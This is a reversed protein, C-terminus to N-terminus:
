NPATPATAPQASAEPELPAGSLWRELDSGTIRLTTIPSGDAGLIQIKGGTLDPTGPILDTPTLADGPGGESLTTLRRESRALERALLEYRRQERKLEALELTGKPADEGVKPWEGSDLRGRVAAVAGSLQPDKLYDLIWQPDAWNKDNGHAGNPRRIIEEGRRIRLMERYQDNTMPIYMGPSPDVGWETSEDTRQICRGSPLYYYQETVKLQGTGSPLRYIAQVIGKGFSRTGMIVARNNDALAGSVVESASASQENVLVIMPFDPLTGESHAYVSEERTTRGRTTVILGDSLFLDALQVAALLSGGGNFRLDLILGKVGDAVLARCAAEVEPVTGATFQNVRIYGIKRVPDIFFNWTDGVRHVGKVTSAVIRERTLDIDFRFFGPKPGRADGVPGPVSPARAGPPMTAGDGAREITVTVSTGPKGTLMGIMADVPKGHVSAGDIAVVLDDAEIGARFAPTDEMPTVIQLFGEFENVQAGVGAYEGRIEKDFEAIDETPIYETYPDDLAELMGSIAGTQMRRLLPEDLEKFFHASILHEVDVVPDFLAYDAGRQAIALPLRVLLAGFVLVLLVTPVVRSYRRHM